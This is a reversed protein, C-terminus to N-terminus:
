GAALAMLNGSAIGELESETLSSYRLKLTSSEPYFFPTHTGFVLREPPISWTQKAQVLAQEADLYSIDALVNRAGSVLTQIERIGGCLAIFRTQPCKLALDALAGAAVPRVQLVAPQNREDNLRLPVLVPLDREAAYHALERLEVLTLPYDHYAPLVRLAAVRYEALAKDCSGRWNAMLPNVTKVPRFRSFEALQRFLPLDVEDPDPFLVSEMSALWMEDIGNRELAADLAVLSAYAPRQLPWFGYSGNVDIIKM